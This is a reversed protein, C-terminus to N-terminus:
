LIFLDEPLKVPEVYLELWEDYWGLNSVGDLSYSCKSPPNFHEVVESITFTNGSMERMRDIVGFKGEVETLNQKVKVIDGVKFKNM